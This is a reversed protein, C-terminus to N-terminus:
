YQEGIEHVPAAGSRGLKGLDNEQGPENKGCKKGNKGAGFFLFARWGYEWRGRALVEYL